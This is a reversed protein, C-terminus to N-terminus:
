LTNEGITLNRGRGRFNLGLEHRAVALQRETELGVLALGVGPHSEQRSAAAVRNIEGIVLGDQSQPLGLGAHAPKAPESEGAPKVRKAQNVWAGSAPRAM